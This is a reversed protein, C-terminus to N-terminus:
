ESLGVNKTQREPRTANKWPIKVGNLRAKVLTKTGFSFYFFCVTEGTCGVGCEM